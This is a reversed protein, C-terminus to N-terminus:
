EVLTLKEPPELLDTDPHDLTPAEAAASGDLGDATRSRGTEALTPLTDTVDAVEFNRM